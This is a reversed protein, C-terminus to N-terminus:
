GVSTPLNVKGPGHLSIVNQLYCRMRSGRQGGCRPKTLVIKMDVPLGKKGHYAYVTYMGNM